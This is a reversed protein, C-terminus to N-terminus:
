IEGDFASWGPEWQAGQRNPEVRHVTVDSGCLDENHSVQPVGCRKMYAALTKVSVDKGILGGTAPGLYRGVGDPSIENAVAREERSGEGDDTTCLNNSAHWLRCPPRVNRLCACREDYVSFFYGLKDGMGIRSDGHAIKISGQITECRNTESEPSLVHFSQLMHEGSALIICQKAKRLGGHECGYIRHFDRRM